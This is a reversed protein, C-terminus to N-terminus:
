VRIDLRSGPPMYRTESTGPAERAFRQAGDVAPAGQAKLTEDSRDAPAVEVRDVPFSRSPAKLSDLAKAEKAADAFDARPPPVDVRAGGRQTAGSYM